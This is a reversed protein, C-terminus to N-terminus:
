HGARIRLLLDSGLPVSRPTQRPLAPRTSAPRAEGWARVTRLAAPRRLVAHPADAAADEPSDALAALASAQAAASLAASPVLAAREAEAYLGFRAIVVAGLVLLLIASRLLLATAYPDDARTPATRTLAPATAASSRRMTRHGVAPRGAPADELGEAVLRRHLAAAFDCPAKPSTSQCCWARAQVLRAVHQALAPDGLLWQEFALKEAPPMAGDVYECLFESLWPYPDDCPTM